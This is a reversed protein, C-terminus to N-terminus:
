GLTFPIAAMMGGDVVLDTGNVYRSEDSLLFLAAGAVDGPVAIEGQPVQSALRELVDPDRQEGRLMRTDVTGPVICNVRVGRAALELAAVRTLGRVAFKASVYPAVNRHGALGMVSSVTVMAGGLHEAMHGGCVKLGLFTGVQNTTVVDLYDALATRVISRGSGGIAANNVMGTVPRGFREVGLRVAREWDAEERVDLHCPLARDGISDAVRAADLEDLEGLVVDAGNDAFLRAEAEGMGRGAGSILITRGALRSQKESM